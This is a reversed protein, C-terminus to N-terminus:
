REPEQEMVPLGVEKDLQQLQMVMYDELKKHMDLTENPNSKDYYIPAGAVCIIKGFMKAILYKDWRDQFWPRTTTFCVPIIPAGSMKAFYVCGDNLRMRPGRPGDPSLCLINNNRLMKVGQRLVNVGGHRTSGFIPRLGFMRQLKAMMRGDRHKSSIAYGHHGFRRVIPSLMMSRGHWFVFIAPHGKFDRFIYDGRIEKKSTWYVLKIGFYFFLAILWQVPGFSKIATFIKKRIKKMIQIIAAFASSKLLTLFGAQAPKSKM